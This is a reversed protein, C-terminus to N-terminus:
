MMNHKKKFTFLRYEPSDKLGKELFDHENLLEQVKESKLHGRNIKDQIEKLRKLPKTVKRYMNNQGQLASQNKLRHCVKCLYKRERNGNEPPLFLKSARKACKPCLFFWRHGGLHNKLAEYEFFQDNVAFKKLEEQSYVYTEEISSEPYDRKILKKIAKQLSNINISSCKEVTLQM